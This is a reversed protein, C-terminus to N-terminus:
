AIFIMTFSANLFDKERQRVSHGVKMQAALNHSVMAM